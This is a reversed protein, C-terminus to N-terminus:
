LCPDVAGVEFVDKVGFLLLAAPPPLLLSSRGGASWFPVGEAGGLFADRPPCMVSPRRGDAVRVTFRACSLAGPNPVCLFGVPM